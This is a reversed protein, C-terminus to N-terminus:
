LMSGVVSLPRSAKMNPLFPQEPKPCLADSVGPPILDVPFFFFFLTQDQLDFLFLPSCALLRLSCDAAEM